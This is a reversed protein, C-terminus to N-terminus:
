MMRLSACRSRSSKSVVRALCPRRGACVCAVFSRSAKISMNNGGASPVGPLARANRRRQRRAKGTMKGLPDSPPAATSSKSRVLFSQSRRLLQPSKLSKHEWHKSAQHQCGRASQHVRHISPRSSAPHSSPHSPHNAQSGPQRGAQRGPQRAAPRSAQRGALM